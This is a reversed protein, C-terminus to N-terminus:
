QYDLDGDNTLAMFRVDVKMNLFSELIGVALASSRHNEAQLRKTGSQRSIAGNGYDRKRLCQPPIV